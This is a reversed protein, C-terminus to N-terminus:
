FHFNAKCAAGSGEAGITYPSSGSRVHRYLEIPGGASAVVTTGDAGYWYLRIAVRWQSGDNPSTSALQHTRAAFLTPVLATAKQKVISSTFKTVWASGGSAKRSIVYGFGVYRQTLGKGHAYFGKVRIKTLGDKSATGTSAYTCTVGPSGNTDDIVYVGPTGTSKTQQYASAPAMGAVTLALTAAVALVLRMTRGPRSLERADM